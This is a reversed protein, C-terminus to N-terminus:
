PGVALMPAIHFESNPTELESLFALIARQSPVSVTTTGGSRRLLLRGERPPLLPSKFLLFGAAMKKGDQLPWLRFHLPSASRDYGDGEVTAKGGNLSRYYFPLPLGFAAREVTQAARGSLIFNKVTDYDPQHRSRFDRFAEGLETLASEWDNWVKDFVVLTYRDPRLNAYPLPNPYKEMRAGHLDHLGQTLLSVLARPSNAEGQYPQPVNAPWEGELENVVLIGSGRRSRAGLGGLTMLLWLARCAEEFSQSRDYRTPRVQLRIKFSEGPPFLPRYRIQLDKGRGQRQHLGYWLYNLANREQRTFDHKPKPPGTTGEQVRVIISSASDTEGFVTAEARHVDTLTVPRGGAVRAGALARLWWRLVGRISAPRLEPAGWPDIGGMFLPSVTKLTVTVHQLTM